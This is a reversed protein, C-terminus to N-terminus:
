PCTAFASTDQVPIAPNNLPNFYRRVRGGQTYTVQITFEVNTTAAFFVWFHNNIACGNLIKLLVELNDPTFFYFATSLNTIGHPVASGSASAIAFAVRFPLNTSGSEVFM